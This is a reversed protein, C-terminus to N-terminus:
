SPSRPFPRCICVSRLHAFRSSHLRGNVRCLVKRGPSYIPTQGFGPLNQENTNANRNECIKLEKAGGKGASQSEVKNISWAM